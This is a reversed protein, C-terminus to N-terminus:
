ADVRAGEHGALDHLCTAVSFDGRRSGFVTAPVALTGHLELLTEFPAQVVSFYGTEPPSWRSDAARIFPALRRWEREFAEQQRRPLDPARRLLGTVSGLLV